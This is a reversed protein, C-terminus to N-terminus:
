GKKRQMILDLVAAAIMLVSVVIVAPHMVSHCRMTNMMCLGILNGPLIASLLAAPIVALSLGQKIKANPVFMHIIAIVLLVAAIGTVAQGAWHCTMWSGDDKPGCSAFFTRIGIMFVASLVLLIIDSVGINIKKNEMLDLEKEQIIATLTIWSVNRIIGAQGLM